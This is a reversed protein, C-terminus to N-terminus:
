GLFELAALLETPGFWSYDEDSAPRVFVAQLSRKTVPEIVAVAGTAGPLVQAEVQAVLVVPTGCLERVEDELVELEDEGMVEQWAPTVAYGSVTTLTASGEFEVLEDKTIGIWVRM